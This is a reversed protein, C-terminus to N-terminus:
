SKDKKIFDANIITERYNGDQWPMPEDYTVQGGRRFVLSAMFVLAAIVGGILILYYETM